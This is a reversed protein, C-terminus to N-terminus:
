KALTFNVNVVMKVPVARGNLLVPDFRWERVARLAPEDLLPISRVIRADVVRGEESITIEALVVGSIGAAQAEAPYRAVDLRQPPAM